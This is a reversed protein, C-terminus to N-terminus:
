CDNIAHISWGSPRECTQSALKKTLILSAELLKTLEDMTIEDLSTDASKSFSLEPTPPSPTAGQHRDLCEDRKREICSNIGDFIESEQTGFYFLDMLVQEALASTHVAVSDLVPGIEAASFDRLDSNWLEHLMAIALRAGREGLQFKSVGTGQKWDEAQATWAARFSDRVADPNSTLGEYLAELAKCFPESTMDVTSLVATAPVIGFILFEQAQNACYRSKDLQRTHSPSWRGRSARDSGRLIAYADEVHLLQSWDIIVLRPSDSKKRRHGTQFFRSNGEWFAWRPSATCSILPSAQDSGWDFHRFVTDFDFPSTNHEAHTFSAEEAAPGDPFSAAVHDGNNDATTQSYEDEIRFLLPHTKRRETLRQRAQSGHTPPYLWVHPLSM